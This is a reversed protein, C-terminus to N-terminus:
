NSKKSTSIYYMSFQYNELKWKRKVRHAEIWGLIIDMFIKIFKTQERYHSRVLFTRYYINLHSYIDEKKSLLVNQGGYLM